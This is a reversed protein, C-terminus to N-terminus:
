NPISGEGPSGTSRSVGRSRESGLVFGLIIMVAALGLHLWNDAWNFPVFNADSNLPIILGYIFLLLYLVGAGILYTRSSSNSRAMWLGAFGLLMHVVNHLISVQFLGLLVAESGYGAFYLAGYNTTIGPIFGLVGIVLFIVGFVTAAIQASTRHASLGRSSSAYSM